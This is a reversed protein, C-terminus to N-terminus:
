LQANKDRPDIASLLGFHSHLIVRDTTSSEALNVALSQSERTLKGNSPNEHNLLTAVEEALSILGNESYGTSPILASTVEELPVAGNTYSLYEELQSSAAVSPGSVPQVGLAGVTRITADVGPVSQVAPNVVGSSAFNFSQTPAPSLTLRGTDSSVETVTTSGNSSVSKALKLTTAVGEALGSLGTIAFDVVAGDVGNGLIADQGTFQVIRAWGSTNNVNAVTVFGNLLLGTTVNSISFKTPDWV